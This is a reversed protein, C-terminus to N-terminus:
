RVYGTMTKSCRFNKEVDPFFATVMPPDLPAGPRSRIKENTSTKLCINASNYPQYGRCRNIGMRNTRYGPGEMGGLKHGRKFTPLCSFMALLFANWCSTYWPRIDQPVRGSREQPYPVVMHGIGHHM